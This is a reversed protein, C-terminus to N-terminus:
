KTYTIFIGASEHTANHLGTEIITVRRSLWKVAPVIKAPDIVVNGKDPNYVGIDNGYWGGPVSMVISKSAKM